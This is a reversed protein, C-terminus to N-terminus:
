RLASRTSTEMARVLVLGQQLQFDTDPKNPELTPWGPPPLKPIQRAAEPVDIAPPPAEPTGGSLIHHLEAEREGGFHPEPKRSEQVVVNPTIGEGQISRGSPTYYRATTLRIAGNGNLPILTQVSGKGFSQTGLVLARHNDQLAAAVIEAASATGNNTLIVVPLNGVMDGGPKASWTEDDSPHRGHTSVIIGHDLFDDSVEIAQDLLGGPNNRLDLILGALHGNAEARLKKVAARVNQNTQETFESIRIVGINGMLQSKVTDIHIIQRTLALVIPEDVGQRKIVLNLHSNPPGRLAAVADDLSLGEVSKGDVATILDGPRIGARSAPTGDIPSIVQLLGANETVDLGIGGFQGTTESQMERWQQETMFASHPDLGTLMGNLANVILTRNSVPDVYDARVRRLVTTFLTLMRDNQAPDASRAAAPQIGLQQSLTMCGPAAVVGGVFGTGALLAAGVRTFKMFEGVRGLFRKGQTFPIRPGLRM